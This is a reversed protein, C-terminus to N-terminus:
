NEQAPRDKSDKRHLWGLRRVLTYLNITWGWGFIRPTFLHPDDPNWCRQKIRDYTPFRLDYPIGLFMGARKKKTAAVLSLLGLAILGLKVSRKM